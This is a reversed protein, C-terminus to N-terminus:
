IYFKFKPSATKIDPNSVLIEGVADSYRITVPESEGIKCTNYNLKTLALIDSAVEEIPVQGYQVDIRLPIPVDYGDYTGIRPKFGSAWLYCSREDLRLMTGRLVPMRGLRYLRFGPRDSDRRVRIGVLRVGDPCAESYGEFAERNITSRCHVFIEKLDKGELEAYTRLTGELVRRAAKKDLSFQKSQPSYWPGYDGLFVVGDGTDLFM